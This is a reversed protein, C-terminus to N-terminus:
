IGDFCQDVMWHIILGPGTTGFQTARGEDSGDNAGGVVPREPALTGNMVLNFTTDGRIIAQIPVDNPAALKHMVQTDNDGIWAPGTKDM